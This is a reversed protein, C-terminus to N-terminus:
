QPEREILFYISDGVMKMTDNNLIALDGLDINTRMKLHITDGVKQYKGWFYDSSFRRVLIGNVYGNEKFELNFGEDTIQYNYATFVTKSKITQLRFLIHGVVIAAIFFCTFSPLFSTINRSTKWLKRDRFLFFVGAICLFTLPLYDIIEGGLLEWGKVSIFELYTAFLGLGFAIYFSYRKM